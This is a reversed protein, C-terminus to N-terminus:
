NHKVLLIMTYDRVAGTSWTARCRIPYAREAGGSGATGGTPTFTVGQNAGVTGTTAASLTLDSPTAPDEDTTGDGSRVSVTASVVTAGAALPELTFTYTRATDAPDLRTPWQKFRSM